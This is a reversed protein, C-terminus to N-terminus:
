LGFNLQVVDASTPWINFWRKAEEQPIPKRYNKKIIAPSNGAEEAVQGINKTLALRYSIFSKRLTNRTEDRGSPIGAKKKARTLSNSPTSIACVPGNRKAYPQLWAILNPQMPVLRDEGVKGVSAPVYILQEEFRVDRWDLNCKEGNMEEHRIGAFATLAIFPKISAPAVALLRTLQEPTLIKIEVPKVNPAPVSELENWTKPLHGARAWEAFTYVAGRYNARTRPKVKLGRLWDGIDKARLVHFACKFHEVFPTLQSELSDLWRTGIGDDKKQALFEPLLEAITKNSVGAPRNEIFYKVAELLSGPVSAGGLLKMCEAYEAAALEPNKGTPALIEIVRELTARHAQTMSAMFTQGNAMATGKLRALEKAETLDSRRTRKRQNGEYWSILYRGDKERYIPIQISGIQVTHAPKGRGKQKLAREAHAAAANLEFLETAPQQNSSAPQKRVPLAIRIRETSAPKAAATM